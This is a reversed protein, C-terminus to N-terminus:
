SLLRLLLHGNPVSVFAGKRLFERSFLAISKDVGCRVIRPVHESMCSDLLRPARLAVRPVHSSEASSTHVVEFAQMRVQDLLVAKIPAKPKALAASFEELTLPHTIPDPGLLSIPSQAEPEM